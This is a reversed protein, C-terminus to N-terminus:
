LLAKFADQSLVVPKDQSLDNTATGLLLKEEPNENLSVQTPLLLYKLRSKDAMQVGALKTAKLLTKLAKNDLFDTQFEVKKYAAIGNIPTTLHGATCTRAM